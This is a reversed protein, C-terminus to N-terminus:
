VGEPNLGERSKRVGPTWGFIPTFILGLPSPPGTLQRASEGAPAPRTLPRKCPWSAILSALM